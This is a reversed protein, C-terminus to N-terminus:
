EVVVGNAYLPAIAKNTVVARITRGSYREDYSTGDYVQVIVDRSGLNHSITFEKTSNNGTITGTYKKLITVASGLATIQGQKNVKIPYVGSTTQASSLVDALGVTINGSTTIPSGSISIGTGQTIGVSTVTGENTTYGM